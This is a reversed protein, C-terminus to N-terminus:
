ENLRQLTVTVFFWNYYILVNAYKKRGLSVLREVRKRVSDNMWMIQNRSGNCDESVNRIHARDVASDGVSNTRDAAIQCKVRSAPRLTADASLDRVVRPIRLREDNMSRKIIGTGCRIGDDIVHLDRRGNANRLVRATWAHSEEAYFTISLNAKKKHRAAIRSKKERHKTSRYIGAYAILFYISSIYTRLYNAIPGPIWACLSARFSKANIHCLLECAYLM